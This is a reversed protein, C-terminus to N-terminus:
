SGVRVTSTEPLPDKNVGNAIVDSVPKVDVLADRTSSALELETLSRQDGGKLYSEYEGVRKGGRVWRERYATRREAALKILGPWYVSHDYEFDVDGGMISWLQAPPVHQRLDENFKMKERTLPDIFPSILKFFGWVPWPVIGDNAMFRGHPWGNDLLNGNTVLARGLREPYHGQLIILTQRGQSVSPNSSNNSNKFDVLIAMTEQGPVMLDIVRELMFSLHQLQRESRKTNQLSPRLYICPRAHNDYGLIVQKGTENEISVYDATREAVGDERRWVLTALLRKPAEAVNWKVARLYRLLCERTLFMREDDTIDTKPADRAATTPITTWASVTALVQKYKAEQDPALVPAPAPAASPDPALFPTKMPSSVHGNMTAM